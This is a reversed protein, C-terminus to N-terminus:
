LQFCTLNLWDSTGSTEGGWGIVPQTKNAVVPVLFVEGGASVSGRAFLGVHKWSGRGWGGRGPVECWSGREWVECWGGDGWVECWGGDGWM